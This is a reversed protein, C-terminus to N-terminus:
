VVQVEIYFVGQIATEPRRRWGAKMGARQFDCLVNQVEIRALSEVEAPQTRWERKRETALPAALFEVLARALQSRVHITVARGDIRRGSRLHKGAELGVIGTVVISVAM